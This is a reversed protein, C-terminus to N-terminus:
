FLNQLEWMRRYLGGQRLLEEHRGREVVLGQDLVLIEDALDLGTLRHTILLVTRGAALRRITDMVERETIADLSATPEDLLLIPANKLIARAIALRQRQGGSLKLGRDGVCTDYGLPLGEIFDHIRAARTAAVIEEEGAEPRAILLNERVTANFLYTQQTVVGILRRVDEPDYDKLERGGLRISGVEYDWFRLIIRMLTSKGAGSPGVVAVMRGEPLDLSLGDIVWPEGPGYRFRLNELRLDYREPVPAPPSPATVPPVTDIVAFLRGAAALSSELNHFVLPMAQVAEFGAAAALALMALHVGAIRGDAVLPIALVLVTWMALHGLLGTLAGSLSSLAAAQWQMKVLTRSVAGIEERQQGARNFAVVEAMGQVADVLRSNLAARTEVVQRGVGRGLARVGLPAAVGAAVFFGLFAVALRPDFCALLVSTGLMVMLTVLPPALVDLYFRELTEVDAVIRSALDGSRSDILRAPALPELAQYFRLRIRGLVRFTADHSVYRELYRFVARSIGFFRVGVIAQMLDLVPPHLAAAAILFASAAMLGISSSVTLFGLLAALLMAKWHPAILVLLRLFVSM